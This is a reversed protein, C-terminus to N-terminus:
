APPRSVPGPCAPAPVKVKLAKSGAPLPQARCPGLSTAGLYAGSPAFRDMVRARYPTSCANCNKLPFQFVVEEGGGAVAKASEVFPPSVIGAGLGPYARALAAYSPGTLVPGPPTIAQYRGNLVAYSFCGCDMPEASLTYGIALRGTEVFGILYSGTAEFYAAAAASAGHARMFHGVCSALVQPAAPRASFYGCAQAAAAQYQRAQPWVASPGVPASPEPNIALPGWSYGSTSTRLVQDPFPGAEGPRGNVVLALDYSPYSLDSLGAGGDDLQTTRWTRGGNTSSYLFGAGSSAAVVVDEPSVAAIGSFLGGLPLRGVLHATAGGDASAMLAKGEQGAGPNGACVEFLHTGDPSALGALDTAQSPQYCPDPLRAWTAGADTTQWLQEPQSYPRAPAKVVWGDRGNWSMAVLQGSVSSLPQWRGSGILSRELLVDPSSSARARWSTVLAYAYGGSAQLSLM